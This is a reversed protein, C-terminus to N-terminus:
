ELLIKPLIEKAKSLHRRIERLALNKFPGDYWETINITSEGRSRNVIIKWGFRIKMLPLKQFASYYIFSSKPFREYTM